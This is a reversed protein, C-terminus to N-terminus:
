KKHDTTCENSNMKQQIQYRADQINYKASPVICHRQEDLSIWQPHRRGQHNLPTERSVHQGHQEQAVLEWHRAELSGESAHLM